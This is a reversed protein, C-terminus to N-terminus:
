AETLEVPVAMYPELVPEEDFGVLLSGELRCPIRKGSSRPRWVLVEDFPRAATGVGVIDSSVGVVADALSRVSIISGQSLATIYSLVAKRAALLEATKTGADLGQRFTVRGRLSVGLLRSPLVRATVGLALVDDVAQQVKGVLAESVTPTTGFVVVDFSGSAGTGTMVRVDSVGVIGLAAMRVATENAGASSIMANKVRFRLNADSEAARGAIGRDNTVLLSGYSADVYGGFDHTSFTGIPYSTAGDSGSQDAAFYQFNDTAGLIVQDRQIFYVGTSLDTPRVITGPPVVIPQGGNLDGFTGGDVYYKFVLDTAEIRAKEEARRYIGFTEAFLDLSQGSLQPLLLSSTQASIDSSLTGVLTAMAEVIARAKSGPQTASIASRSASNSIAEAVLADVSRTRFM